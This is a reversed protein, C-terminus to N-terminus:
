IWSFSSLGLADRAAAVGAVDGRRGLVSDIISVVGDEEDHRGIGPTIKTLGSPWRLVVAM